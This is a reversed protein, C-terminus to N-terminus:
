AIPGATIYGIVQESPNAINHINGTLSSPQPDFVGGIKETNKSLQQYYEFGEKTLAQQKVLISYRSSVKESHSDIFTVPANALVDRTLKDTSGLVIDSSKGSSWCTYIQHAADRAIITDVMKGSEDQTKSVMLTSEYYAHIIWTEEYQYRYYRSNNSPDHTSVNIQVGTNLARFSVSDIPPSNKVTVFDSEYTKNESTVIKLRYKNNANLNLGGSVYYGNGTETLAYTANADSEVTVIAKLEPPLTTGAPASLPITHTLHIITSDAGTNIPGEVVLLSSGSTITSPAYPKKCSGFLLLAQVILTYKYIRKNM